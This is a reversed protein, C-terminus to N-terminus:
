GQEWFWLLQLLNCPNCFVKRAEPFAGCRFRPKPDATSTINQAMEREAADALITEARLWADPGRQASGAGCGPTHRQEQTVETHSAKLM